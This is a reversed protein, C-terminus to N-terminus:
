QSGMYMGNMTSPLMTLCAGKKNGRILEHSELDPDAAMDEEMEAQKNQM